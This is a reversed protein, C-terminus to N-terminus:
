ICTYATVTTSIGNYVQLIHNKKQRKKATIIWENTLPINKMLTEIAYVLIASFQGGKKYYSTKKNNNHDSHKSSCFM